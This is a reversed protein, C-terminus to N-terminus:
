RPQRAAPCGAEKGGVPDRVQSTTVGQEFRWSRYRRM